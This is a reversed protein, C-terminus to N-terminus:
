NKVLTVHDNPTWEALTYAGNGVYTGPKTWADGHAEIVHRPVAFTTYHTLYELLFPAPNELEVVFTKDDPASVGLATLPMEGTNVPQGSKILYLYYAYSAATKPDLIRRWAYVFDEATVPMGDSWQHDRLHFTWTKGDASTEWKEAAGPIPEGDPGETTLGVLLDGIINNEWNAQSHHPDLTLPEAANGFNFVMEGPKAAGASSTQQATQNRGCAALLAAAGASALFGRRDTVQMM